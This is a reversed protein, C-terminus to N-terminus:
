ESIEGIPATTLFFDEKQGLGALPSLNAHPLIAGHPHGEVYPAM